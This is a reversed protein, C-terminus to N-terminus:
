VRVIAEAGITHVIMQAASGEPDFASGARPVVVLRALAPLRQPAHWSLLDLFTESGVLLHLEDGARALEALTDVTYSPGGRRM